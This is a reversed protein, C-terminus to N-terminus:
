AWPAMAEAFAVLERAVDVGVPHFAVETAGTADMDRLRTRLADVTGSFTFREITGSDTLVEDPGATSVFHGSHVTLHRIEAPVEEVRAMWERGHPLQAVKASGGSSEYISHYALAVAPAADRLVRQSSFDEDTDLVTGTVTVVCRDFGTSPTNICFLGDGNRGAVARGVPGMAAVLIPIKEGDGDLMGPGHLLRTVDGDVSVMEGRLLARLQRLYEEVEAWSLAGKGLLRRGTFGTGVALSVRGPVLSELTRAATATVAVHRLSPVIVAPGIGISATALALRTLTMWVDPYVNPSDNIWIRKYGLNEATQAHDVVAPSPTLTVSMEM